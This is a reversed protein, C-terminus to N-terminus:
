VTITMDAALIATVISDWDADDLTEEGIDISTVTHERSLLKISNVVKDCDPFLNTNLQLIKMKRQAEFMLSAILILFPM